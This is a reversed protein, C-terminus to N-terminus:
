GEVNVVFTEGGHYHTRVRISENRIYANYDCGGQGLCHQVDAATVKGDKNTDYKGEFREKSTSWFCIEPDIYQYLGKDGGILGHHALQLIDSKLYSGYTAALQKSTKEAADGLVTFTKGSDFTFRVMLSTWNYSEAKIPYLDEETTLVEMEVGKFYLKQGTHVNYVTADYFRKILNELAFIAAGIKQDDQSTDQVSCDPFNCAVSELEVQEMYKTLFAQPAGIHDPDAHTFMWCAITPKKGSPTKEVMYDYLKQVNGSDSTGGDIVIFSYDKLQIVYSMGLGGIGIQAISMQATDLSTLTPKELAPLTGPEEFVIRTTKQSDNYNVFVQLDEATYAFSLNKGIGNESYKSFGNAELKKTYTLTEAGTTEQICVEYGGNVSYLPLVKGNLADYVPVSAKKNGLLASAQVNLDERLCYGQDIQELSNCITKLGAKVAVDTPATVMIHWEWIGISYDTYGTKKLQQEVPPRGATANIAIEYKTSIASLEDVVPLKVGTKKEVDKVFNDVIEALEESCDVPKTVTCRANGKSDVMVMAPAPAATMEESSSSEGTQLPKDTIKCASMLLVLMIFLSIIRIKKKM